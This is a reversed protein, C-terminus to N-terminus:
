MTEMIGDIVAGITKFVTNAGTKMKKHQRDNIPDALMGMAAGLIAGCALGGWFGKSSM